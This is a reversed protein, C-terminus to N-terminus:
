PESDRRLQRQGIERAPNGAVISWASVDKMVVAMAGAIAGQGIKVGPGIFARACVWAQDEVAIPSALLRMHPDAPDHTATCLLAEQSVTAYAGIKVHAVCYCDVRVSLTSGEDMTLNWPAWIRVSPFIKVGRAIKAGFM